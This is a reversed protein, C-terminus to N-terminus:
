FSGGVGLGLTPGSPTPLVTPTVLVHRRNYDAAASGATAVDYVAGAAEIGVGLLIAGPDGGSTAVIGAGAVRTVLGLTLYRGAYWEGLSPTILGTALGAIDLKPSATNFGIVVLATSAATGSLSLAVATAESRPEPSDDAMALRSALAVVVLVTLSRATM